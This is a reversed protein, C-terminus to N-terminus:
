RDTLCNTTLVLTSVGTDSAGAGVASGVTWLAGNHVTAGMLRNSTGITPVTLPAFATGDHRLVLAQLDRDNGPVSSYGVAYLEGGEMAVGTLYNFTAAGYTKIRDWKGFSPEYRIALTDRGGTASPTDGVAYVATGHPTLDTLNGPVTSIISWGKMTHHLLLADADSNIPSGVAWLDDVENGAIATVQMAALEPSFPLPQWNKGDYYLVVPQVANNATTYGSVVVGATAQTGDIMTVGTLRLSTPLASAPEPIPVLQWIKGTYHLVLPVDMGANTTAYGVAWINNLRGAVATLTNLYGLNPSPMVTWTKGDYRMILTAQKLAWTSGVRSTAGVAWLEQQDVPGTAFVTTVDNLVDLQGPSPSVSQCLQPEIGAPAAPPTIGKGVAPNPAVIGVLALLLLGVLLLTGFRTHAKMM